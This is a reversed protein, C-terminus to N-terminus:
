IGMDKLGDMIRYSKPIEFLSVSVKTTCELIEMIFDDEGDKGTIFALENGDFYYRINNGKDIEMEEYPLKKGLVTDIGSSTIKTGIIDPQKFLAPNIGLLSLNMAMKDKDSIMYAKKGEILFRVVQGEYSMKTVTKKGMTAFTVDSKTARGDIKAHMIFHMMMDKDKFQKMYKDAKGEAGATGALFVFTFITLLLLKLRKM